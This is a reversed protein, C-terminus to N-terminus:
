FSLCQRFRTSPRRRDVHRRENWQPIFAASVEAQCPSWEPTMENLRHELTGGSLAAPSRLVELGVCAGAHRSRSPRAADAEGRQRLSGAENVAAAWLKM